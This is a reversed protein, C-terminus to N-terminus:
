VTGLFSSGKKTNKNVDVQRSNQPTTRGGLEELVSEGTDCDICRDFAHMDAPFPPLDM